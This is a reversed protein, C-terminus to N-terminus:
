RPSDGRLSYVPRHVVMHIEGSPDGRLGAFGPGPPTHASHVSSLEPASSRTVFRHRAPTPQDHQATRTTAIMNRPTLQSTGPAVHDTASGGAPTATGRKSAPIALEIM